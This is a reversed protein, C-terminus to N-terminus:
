FGFGDSNLKVKLGAMVALADHDLTLSEECKGRNCSANDTYLDIAGYDTYRGALTFYVNNAIRSEMGLELFYGNLDTEQNTGSGHWPSFVDQGLLEVQSLEGFAWGGGAYLMTNLTLLYGARLGLVGGWEQHFRMVNASESRDPNYDNDYASADINFEADNLNVGAFVGVVLRQGIQKDFGVQLEGFLGDAGLGDVSFSDGEIAEGDNKLRDFNYDLGSNSFQYGGVAGFWIGSFSQGPQESAVSTPDVTNSGRLDAASASTAFFVSALAIASTSLISKM